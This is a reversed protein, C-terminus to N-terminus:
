VAQTGDGHQAESQHEANNVEKLANAAQRERHLLELQSRHEDPSPNPKMTSAHPNHIDFCDNPHMQHQSCWAEFLHQDKKKPVEDTPTSESM